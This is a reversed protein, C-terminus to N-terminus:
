SAVCPNMFGSLISLLSITGYVDGIKPETSQEVTSDNYWTGGAWAHVGAHIQSQGDM